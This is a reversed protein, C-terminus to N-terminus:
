PKEQVKIPGGNKEIGSKFKNIFEDSMDRFHSLYENKTGRFNLPHNPSHFESSKPIQIQKVM